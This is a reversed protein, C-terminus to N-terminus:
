GNGLSKTFGGLIGGVLDGIGAYNRQGGAVEKVAQGVRTKSETGAFPQDLLAFGKSTIMPNVMGVSGSLLQHMNTCRVIEEELLWLCCGDFFPEYEDPLAVDDFQLVNGQQLGMELLVQLIKSIVLESKQLNTDSM